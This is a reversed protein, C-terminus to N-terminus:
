KGEEKISCEMSQWESGFGLAAAAGGGGENHFYNIAIRLFPVKGENGDIQILICCKQENSAQRSAVGQLFNQM